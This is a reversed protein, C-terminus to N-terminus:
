QQHELLHLIADNLSVNLDNALIDLRSWTSANVAIRKIAVADGYSRKIRLRNARISTKLTHWYTKSLYRECWANLADANNDDLAFFAKSAENSRQMDKDPFYSEKTFKNTIWRSATALDEDALKYRKM